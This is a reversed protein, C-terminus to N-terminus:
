RARRVFRLNGGGGVVPIRVFSDHLFVTVNAEESPAVIWDNDHGAIVIALRHRKKFVYDDAMIAWEFKYVEGPVAPTNESLSERHSANLWGRSVIEMKQEAVVKELEFYCADDKATSEGWCTEETTKRVGDGQGEQIHNGKGYDVLLATFNIDSRDLSASLTVKVEGSLRFPKRLPRSLYLLRTPKSQYRNTVMESESQGFEDEFTQEADKAPRARRLGGPLKKKAPTLWMVVDRTRADPWTRYTKWVGPAREIDVAPERMIGNDIDHLWYDFWRHLTEVWKARRFDFPDVHGTQTLWMKRPVGHKGLADWWKSFNNPKVNWDNLGHTVFVSAKVKEADKLYDREAWFDDYNSQPDAARGSMESAVATCVSHGAFTSRVWAADREEDSGPEHDVVVGFLAPIYYSQLYRAGNHMHYDYWSDIASVPVITRLGDVALAAAGNTITGDYSKGIMGALGSSWTAKVEEGTGTFAKGKGNLWDMTAKAVEIEEVGGLVLCGESNRTGRVDQAIFAYGRPVFYNDYFLPFFEPVFDGDEDEKVENESGRGFQQPYVTNQYYPSMEYIAPVDLGSNTEKPRIVDTAILDLQQDGDNDMTSQVYVTERIADKYSFVPQTVGDKVVIAPAAGNAAIPAGLGAGILGGCLVLTLGRRGIRMM